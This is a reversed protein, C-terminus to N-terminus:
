TRSEYLRKEVIDIIEILSNVSYTAKENSKIEDFYVTDVGANNGCEVDLVRDGIYMTKDKELQYKDIIFDLAESHPKRKFKNESTVIEIFYHEVGSAKLIEFTSLGRHTYIYHKCGIKKLKELVITTDKILHYESPKILKNIQHYKQFLGDLSIEKEEAIKSFFTVVSTTKIEELIYTKDLKYDALLEVIATSMIDYSDVLTGDLDWILSQM